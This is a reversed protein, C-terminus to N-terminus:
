RAQWSLRLGTTGGPWYAPSLRLGLAGATPPRGWRNRHTLYALRASLIGVAAGAFVDSEWHKNNLVRLVAVSSALTYAGVGYWPSRDRLELNVVTAALFAQAAHDSPFSHDDKGSPREVGTTYKLGYVAVNLVLEAKALLLATNLLDHQPRVGALEAGALGLYSVYGLYNDATFHFNPFAQQVDAQARYSSYFGHGNITILGYGFLLAPVVVARLAPSRFLGPRAPEAVSDARPGTPRRASVTQAWAAPQAQLLLAMLGIILRFQEGKSRCLNGGDALWSLKWVRRM